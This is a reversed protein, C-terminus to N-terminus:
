VNATVMQKAEALSIDGDGKHYVLCKDDWGNLTGGSWPEAEVSPFDEWREIEHQLEKAEEETEALVYATKAITVEFLKAM